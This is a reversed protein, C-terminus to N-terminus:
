SSLTSFTIWLFNLVLFQPIDLIYSQLLWVYKWCFIIGYSKINTSLHREDGFMNGRFWLRFIVRSTHFCRLTFPFREGPCQLFTAALTVNRGNSKMCVVHLSCSCYSYDRLSVWPVAAKKAALVNWRSNVGRSSAVNHLRARTWARPYNGSQM